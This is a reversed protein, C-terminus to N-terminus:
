VRVIQDGTDANIRRQVRIESRNEVACWVANGVDDNGATLRQHWDIESGEAILTIGTRIRYRRVCRNFTSWTRRPITM